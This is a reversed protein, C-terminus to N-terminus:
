VTGYYIKIGILAVDGAVNDNSVNRYARFQAMDGATAGTITVAGSVATIHVDSNALLTDVVEVATGFAQDIADSDGYSRGQLNLAFTEAPTGAAATWIGRYTVTGADWNDPMLATFQFHEQTTDDFYTVMLDVNNTVYHVQTVASSGATTSPRGQTVMLILEGGASGSGGFAQWVTGNYFNYNGTTTNFIMLGDAPSSIADRQATTMRPPLWGQTTSDGQVQASAEDSSIGVKIAAAM